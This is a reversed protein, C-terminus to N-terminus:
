LPSMPMSSSRRKDTPRAISAKATDMELPRVMLFYESRALRMQPAHNPANWASIGMIPQSKPERKSFHIEMPAGHIAKM